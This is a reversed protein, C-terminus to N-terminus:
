NYPEHSGYTNGFSINVAIPNQYEQAKRIVYDLGRMLETTRPFGGARARALKVIVLPSEPAVGAYRGGSGRGNGAAIGAVATGHGSTDESSVIQKRAAPDEEELARNIEEETYERDEEQDWLARVLLVAYENQLEYVEEALERVEKLDGSYKIILEWTKTEPDFGVELEPSKAREEGTAELALNLLNEIKQSGYIDRVDVAM